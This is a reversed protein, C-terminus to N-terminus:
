AMVLWGFGVNEVQLLSAALRRRCRNTRGGVLHPEFHCVVETEFLAPPQAQMLFAALHILHAATVLKLFIQVGIDSCGTDRGVFFVRQEARGYVPLSESRGTHRTSALHM